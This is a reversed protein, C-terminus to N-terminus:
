EASICVLRTHASSAVLQAKEENELSSKRFITLHPVFRLDTIFEIAEEEIYERLCTKLEKGLEVEM